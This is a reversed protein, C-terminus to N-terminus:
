TAALGKWDGVAAGVGLCLLVVTWFGGHWDCGPMGIGHGQERPAVSLAEIGLAGLFSSVLAGWVVANLLVCTGETGLVLWESLGQALGWQGWGGQHPGLDDGAVAMGGAPDLPHDWPVVTVAAGRKCLCRIQNNKLGCDLATVRLSGDPNFM